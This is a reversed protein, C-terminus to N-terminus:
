RSTPPSLTVDDFYRQSANALGAYLEHFVVAARGRPGSLPALREPLEPDLLPFGRFQHVLRTRTVFAQRDSLSALARRGCLPAFQAFFAEYRDVLGSLDWAREVLAPLGVVMDADATFVTANDSVDLEALLRVV